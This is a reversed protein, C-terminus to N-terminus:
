NQPNRRFLLIVHGHCTYGEGGGGQIGSKYLLVPTHLTYRNKKKKSWFMSKPYENSSGRRSPELTYGYDVYQAFFFFILCIRSFNEIKEASFIETFQIPM